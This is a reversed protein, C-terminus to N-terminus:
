SIKIIKKSRTKKKNIKKNKNMNRKPNIKTTNRKSKNCEKM